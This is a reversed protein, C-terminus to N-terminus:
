KGDLREIEDQHMPGVGYVLGYWAPYNESWMSGQKNALKWMTADTSAENTGVVVAGVDRVHQYADPGGGEGIKAQSQVVLDSQYPLQSLLGIRSGISEDRIDKPLVERLAWGARLVVRTSEHATDWFAQKFGPDTADARQLAERIGTRMNELVTPM